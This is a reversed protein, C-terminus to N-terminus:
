GPGDSAAALLPAVIESIPAPLGHARAKRLIVGNRIDWELPRGQERDTLISTTLDEPAGTFMALIDDLATDDLRAGDVRAVALCEALYQRAIATMDDRRYMGSRRGTLVMLGAVANTLLKRRAETRFDDDLDVTVGAARLLDALTKSPGSDPLVLRVDTRLRVWGEPQIQASFWVVAPVVVAGPCSPDTSRQPTPACRAPCCSPTATM